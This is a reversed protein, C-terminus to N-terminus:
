PHLCGSKLSFVCFRSAQAVSEDSFKDSVTQRDFPKPQPANSEVPAKGSKPGPDPHPCDEDHQGNERGGEGGTVIVHPDYQKDGVMFTYKFRQGIAAKVPPGSKLPHGPKQPVGFYNVPPAFPFPLPPPGPVSQDKPCGHNWVREITVIEFSKHKCSTWVIQDKNDYRLVIEDHGALSFNKKLGDLHISQDKADLRAALDCLNVSIVKAVPPHNPLAVKQKDQSHLPSILGAVLCVVVASKCFTM